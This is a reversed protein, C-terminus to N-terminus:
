RAGDCDLDFGGQRAGADQVSRMHPAMRRALGPLREHGRCLFQPTRKTLPFRLTPSVYEVSQLNQKDEIDDGEALDKPGQATYAVDGSLPGAIKYTPVGARDYNFKLFSRSASLFEQWDTFDKGAAPHYVGDERKDIALHSIKNQNTIFSVFFSRPQDGMRVLYTGPPKGNLLTECEYESVDGQFWPEKTLTTELPRKLYERYCSLLDYLDKFRRENGGQEKVKVGKPMESEVMVSFVRHNEGNFALAFAGPQTKSFRVLFTGLHGNDQLLKNAETRSIFGHFFKESLIRNM